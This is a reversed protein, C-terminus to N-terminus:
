DPLAFVENRIDNDLIPPTDFEKKQSYSLIQILPM